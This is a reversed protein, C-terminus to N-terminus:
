VDSLKTKKGLLYFGYIIGATLALPIIIWVINHGEFLQYYLTATIWGLLTVYAALIWAYKQGIEKAIAGFAAVCPFYLLIFLLYAYAQVPTFYKKMTDFISKDAGIEESISGQDTEKIIELGLPDLVGDFIGSLNEPISAFAGSIGGWFDFEEEEAPAEEGADGAGMQGYLANLTGVVAEKAFLGTFLSVTAPWNEEKIGMPEVIPSLTRGMSSLMSKESDENGFSGDTGLSNLFGVVAVMIVIVKGARFMFEKLRVWVHKLIHGIRPMHYPPLEMVFHSPEQAFM